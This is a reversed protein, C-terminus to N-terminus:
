YVKGRTKSDVGGRLLAELAELTIVKDGDKGDMLDDYVEQAEEVLGAKFYVKALEVKAAKTTFQAELGSPVSCLERTGDKASLIGSAISSLLIIGLNPPLDTRDDPKPSLHLISGM